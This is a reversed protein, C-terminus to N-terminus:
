SPLKLSAAQRRLIASGKRKRLGVIVAVGSGLLLLSSPEPANFQQSLNPHDAPARLNAEIYFTVVGWDGPSLDVTFSGPAPFGHLDSNETFFLDTVTGDDLISQTCVFGNSTCIISAYRQNVQIDLTTFPSSTDPIIFGFCGSGNNDALATFSKIDGGNPGASITQTGGTIPSCQPDDVQMQPDGAPLSSAFALGAFFCLFFGLWLFRTRGM